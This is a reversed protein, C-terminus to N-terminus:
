VFARAVGDAGINIEGTVPHVSASLSGLSMNVPVSYSVPLLGLKTLAKDIRTERDGTLRNIWTRGILFLSASCRKAFLEPADQLEIPNISGGGMPPMLLKWPHMSSVAVSMPSYATDVLTEPNTILRTIFNSFVYNLEGSLNGPPKGAGSDYYAINFLSSGDAALTLDLSQYTTGIGPYVQRVGGIAADLVADLHHVGFAAAGYDVTFESHILLDLAYDAPCGPTQPRFSVTYASSTLPEVYSFKVPTLVGAGDYWCAMISDTVHLDAASATSTFPQIECSNATPSTGSTTYFAVRRLGAVAAINHTMTATTSTFLSDSIVIEFFAYPFRQGVSEATDGESYFMLCCKDGRPTIDSIGMSVTAPLIAETMESPLAAGMGRSALSPVFYHVVPIEGFGGIQRAQLGISLAADSVEIGTTATTVSILWRTGDARAFMWNVPKISVPKGYISANNGYTLLYDLWTGGAPVACGSGGPAGPVRFAFCDNTEPAPWTRTSSDPLTLTSGTLSGHWPNGFATLVGLPPVVPLGFDM